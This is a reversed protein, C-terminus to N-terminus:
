RCILSVGLLLLAIGLVKRRTVPENIYRASLILTWVYTLSTLPAVLSLDHNKLLLVHLITALTYLGIGLYLHPCKIIDWLSTSGAAKKFSLSGFAGLFTMPIVVLIIM